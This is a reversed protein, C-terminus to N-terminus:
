EAVAIKIVLKRVEKSEQICIGPRHADSPFFLFFHAKSAMYIDGKSHGFFILDKTENYAQPQVTKELPLIGMQEEGFIVFQLDIYKRHAEWKADEPLKTQYDSISAFVDKEIINYKGPVLKTLDQKLFEFTAKWLDPRAHYQKYFEVINISEHPIPSFYDKWDAKDFWIKENNM